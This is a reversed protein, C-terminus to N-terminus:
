VDRRSFQWVGVAVTMASGGLLVALLQVLADWDYEGKVIAPLRSLLRSPVLTPQPILTTLFGGVYVVMWVGTVGLLTSNTLAGTTLGLSIIAMLLVGMSVLAVLSGSLSLDEHLLLHVAILMLGALLWFTGIIAILRAHWKALFYHCRSIGRSLVADGLTGLESSISGVTLIVVLAISALMTWLFLEGIMVSAAQVIGAERYIGLRYLLYGAGAAVLLVVWIRYVWSALTQRIDTQLVALYPLWPQLRGSAVVAGPGAPANANPVALPNM